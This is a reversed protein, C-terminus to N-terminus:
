KTSYFQVAYLPSVKNCFWELVNVRQPLILLNESRNVGTSDQIRNISVSSGFLSVLKNDLVHNNM